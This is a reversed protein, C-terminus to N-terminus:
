QLGREDKAKTWINKKASKSLEKADKPNAKSTSAAEKYSLYDLVDQIDRLDLNASIRVLIENGSREVTM